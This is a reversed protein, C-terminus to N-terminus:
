IQPTSPDISICNIQQSVWKPTEVKKKIEIM